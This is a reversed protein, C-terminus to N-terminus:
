DRGNDPLQFVTVSEIRDGASTIDMKRHEVLKGHVALITKVADKADHLEIETTVEERTGEDKVVYITRKQRIKKIIHLKSRAKESSLDLYVQDDGATRLFPEFSARGFDTMRAMAEAASMSMTNLRAEIAESIWIDKLAMEGEYAAVEEPLGVRLAAREASFDRCYEEVFRQKVLEDKIKQPLAKKRAM